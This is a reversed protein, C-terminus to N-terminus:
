VYSPRHRPSARGDAARRRYRPRFRRHAQRSKGRQWARHEAATECGHLSV